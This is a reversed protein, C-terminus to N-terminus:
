LYVGISGFGISTFDLKLGEELTLVTKKKIKKNQKTKQILNSGGFKEMSM